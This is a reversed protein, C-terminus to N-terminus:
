TDTVTLMARQGERVVSAAIRGGHNTYKVANDILNAAAQELRVRDGLVVAEDKREITLQMDSAEAVDRYLDVAREIVDGLNVAEQKLPMAGSEAESIDLLTNLMVIVRDAEEVCDALAERYREPDPAGALAVEASGRLHTLPTRLDHSVGDLAGRMGTVLGEIRDLMSNFSVTLEHIADGAPAVPVREETRGTRVIRQVADSLRRIPQLAAQTALWGGTLAIGVLALTVLTLAVRFRGLLDMRAETSKGVQVLAGDSLRVSATELTAPDWGEANSLVLTESGRDVIRVFLREPATLQEVRVAEALARTGGRQYVTAYEGLKSQLIQQDREALSAATLFYALVAVVVSGAVFLCAYWFALRLGFRREGSSM